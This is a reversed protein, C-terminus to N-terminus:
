DGGWQGMKVNPTLSGLQPSVVNLGYCSGVLQTAKPWDRLREPGLKRMQLVTAAVSDAEYLQKLNFSLCAGTWEASHGPVTGLGRNVPCRLSRARYQAHVVGHSPVAGKDQECGGGVWQVRPGLGLGPLSTQRPQCGMEQPGPTHTVRGPVRLQSGSARAGQSGAEM